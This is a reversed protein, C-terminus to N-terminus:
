RNAIKRYIELARRYEALADKKLTGESRKIQSTVRQILYQIEERRPKIKQDKMEIHFPASHAFRIRKGRKEYCRVALWSTQDVDLVVNFHLKDEDKVGKITEPGIVSVVKGNLLLEVKELTGQTFAFVKVRYKTKKKQKFLHGPHKDNVTVSLMPGTTVFSSGRDLGDIWNEYSFGKPCHVYVRGFGLPVPHVGSATGATPRMRFGCNLLAYYNQFTFDIWGRETMGRRNTEIKMYAPPKEGFGPFGFRTRWIHNNSLEYLDVNMIPVLMMSWPWNHKDLELLAKEQRAKMAIPTVPPVGRQFVSKHNLVFVAGLTHRKGDISFIEYETNRPYYVHHDDVKVVKAPPDKKTSKESSKPPAYGRTVWYVLPLAVNLDEALMVNPLEDLSRHVHTDGSYWGRKAMNIWRTLKLNLSVPKDSIQVQRVLTRYEHGREVTVTYKGTPLDVTFPHASLTTHMEESPPVNPRKKRYHVARGKKSASKAFFWEGKANQIYLRAPLLKGKEDVIRGKLEVASTAHLFFLSFLISLSFRM